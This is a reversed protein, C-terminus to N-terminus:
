VLLDSDLTSPSERPNRRRTSSTMGHWPRRRHRPPPSVRPYMGQNMRARPILRHWPSTMHRLADVMDRAVVNSLWSRQRDLRVVNPWSLPLSTASWRCGAWPWWAEPRSDPSGPVAPSPVWPPRPPWSSEAADPPPTPRSTMPDPSGRWPGWPSAIGRSADHRTMMMVVCGCPSLFPPGCRLLRWM